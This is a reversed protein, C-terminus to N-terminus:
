SRAMEWRAHCRDHGSNMGQTKRADARLALQLKSQFRVPLAAGRECLKFVNTGPQPLAVPLGLRCQVPHRDAVKGKIVLNQVHGEDEAVQGLPHLSEITGLQVVIEPQRAPAGGTRGTIGVGAAAGAHRRALHGFPEVGVVVVDDGFERGAGSEAQIGATQQGLQVLRATQADLGFRHDDARHGIQGDALALVTGGPQVQQLAQQRNVGFQQVQQGYVAGFPHLNVLRQQHGLQLGVPLLREVRGVVVQFAAPHFQQQRGVKAGQVFVLVQCGVQRHGAQVHIRHGPTIIDQREQVQQRQM